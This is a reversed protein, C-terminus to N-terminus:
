QKRFIKKLAINYRRIWNNVVFFRLGNVCYRISNIGCRNSFNEHFWTEM